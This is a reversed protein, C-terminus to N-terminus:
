ARVVQAINASTLDRPEPPPKPRNFDNAAFVFLSGELKGLNGLVKAAEAANAVGLMGALTTAEASAFTMSLSKAMAARMADEFGPLPPQVAAKAAPWQAWFSAFDGRELADDLDVVVKIEADDHLREPIQCMCTSCESAGLQPLCALLMRAVLPKKMEAPQFQYERLLAAFLVISGGYAGSDLKKTVDAELAALAM